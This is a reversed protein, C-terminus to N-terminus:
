EEPIDWLFVVQDQVTVSAVKQGDRSVALHSVSNIHGPFIHRVARTPVDWLWIEGFANFVGTGAVLRKGDPLFAVCGVSGPMGTLQGALRRGPVDWLGITGDGSASAALAGDPTFAVGWVVERHVRFNALEKGAPADWLRVTKDDSGSLLTRGDRSFALANVSGGHGKLLAIQKDQVVDWVLINGPVLKGGDTGGGSSIAAMKGDGTLALCSSGDARAGLLRRGKGAPMDWLQVTGDASVSALTAGDETLALGRIMGHEKGNALRGRHSNLDWLKIEGVWRKGTADAGGSGVVLNDKDFVLAAVPGLHGELTDDPGDVNQLAAAPPGVPATALSRIGWFVMGGLGMLLVLPVGVAVLILVVVLATPFPKNPRDASSDSRDFRSRGGPRQRPEPFDAARANPLGPNTRFAGEPRDPSFEAAAGCVPCNEERLTSSWQHGNLCHLQRSM